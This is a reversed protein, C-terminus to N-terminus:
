MAPYYTIMKLFFISDFKYFISVGWKDIKIYISREDKIVKIRSQYFGWSTDFEINKIFQPEKKLLYM